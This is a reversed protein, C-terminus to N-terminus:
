CIKRICKVGGQHSCTMSGSLQWVEGLEQVSRGQADCREMLQFVKRVVKVGGQASDCRKFTLM